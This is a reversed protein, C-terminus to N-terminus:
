ATGSPFVSSATGLAARAQQLFKRGMFYSLSTDPVGSVLGQSVCLGAAALLALASDCSGWDCGPNQPQPPPAGHPGTPIVTTVASVRECAGRRSM